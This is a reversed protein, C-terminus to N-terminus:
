TYTFYYIKTFVWQAPALNKCVPPPAVIPVNTLKVTRGNDSEQVTGRGTVLWLMKGTGTHTIVPDTTYKNNQSLSILM